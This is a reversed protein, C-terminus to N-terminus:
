HISVSVVWGIIVFIFVFIKNEILGTFLAWGLGSALAVLIYFVPSIFKFVGKFDVKKEYM